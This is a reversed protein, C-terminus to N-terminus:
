WRAYSTWPHDRTEKKPEGQRYGLRTRIRGKAEYDALTSWQKLWRLLAVDRRGGWMWATWVIPDSAAEEPSLEHIDYPDIIIRYDDDGSSETPKPVIYTLAEGAPSEPHLTILAAPGSAKKFMGFRLASFNIIEEVRFTEF